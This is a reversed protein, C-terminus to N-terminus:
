GNKEHFIAFTPAYAHQLNRKQSVYAGVVQKKTDLVRLIPFPTKLKKDSAFPVRNKVLFRDNKAIKWSFRCVKAAAKLAASM